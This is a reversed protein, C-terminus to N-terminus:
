RYSNVPHVFHEYAPMRLFLQEKATDVENGKTSNADPRGEQWKM